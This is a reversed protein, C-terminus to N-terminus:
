VGDRVMDKLTAMINCATDGRGKTRDLFAIINDVAEKNVAKKYEMAANFIDGCLASKDTHELAKHAARLRLYITKNSIAKKM